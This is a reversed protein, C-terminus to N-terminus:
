NLKKQSLNSVTNQLLLILIIRRIQKNKKLYLKFIIGIKYRLYVFNFIFIYILVKVSDM